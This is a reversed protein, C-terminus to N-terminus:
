ASWQHNPSFQMLPIPIKKFDMQYVLVAFLFGSSIYLTGPTKLVHQAFSIVQIGVKKCFGPQCIPSLV